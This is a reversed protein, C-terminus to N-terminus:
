LELQCMGQCLTQYRRQHWRPTTASFFCFFFLVRRFESGCNCSEIASLASFYLHAHPLGHRRLVLESAESLCGTEINGRPHFHLRPALFLGHPTSLLLTGDYGQLLPSAVATHCLSSHGFAANCRRPAACRIAHHNDLLRCCSSRASFSLPHRHGSVYTEESFNREVM